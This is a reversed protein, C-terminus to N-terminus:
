AEEDEEQERKKRMFYVFSFSFLFCFFLVGGILLADKITGDPSFLTMLAFVIGVALSILITQYYPGQKKTSHTDYEDVSIRINLYGLLVSTGIFVLWLPHDTVQNFGKTIAEFILIGIICVTQFVFAIRINKLNQVVLREDKIMKM